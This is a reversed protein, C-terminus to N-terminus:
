LLVQVPLAVKPSSCWTPMFRESGSCVDTIDNSKSMFSQGFTTLPLDFNFHNLGFSM